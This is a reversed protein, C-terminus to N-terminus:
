LERHCQLCRGAERCASAERFGEEVERSNGKRTRLPLRPMEERIRAQPTERHGRFPKRLRRDTLRTHPVEGPAYAAFIALAARRGQAMAQVATAPGSVADGGAYVKALSTRQSVPDAWVTGDSNRRLGDLHPDSWLAGGVRQGLAPILSDVELTWEAGETPVPRPRGSADPEGLRMRNLVLTAPKGPEGQLAAPDSLFHFQVGERAAEEVEDARAPMEDRTRRYLLHVEEAGLRLATRCVDMAANGGGVVAVRKGVQVPAGVKAAWLVRQFDLVQEGGPIALGVAEGAGVALFLARHERLLEGVGVGEPGVPSKTRFVVGRDRLDELEEDLIYPPLRYDPITTALRGGVVEGAEYVTVSAGLASLYYACAIGAPGSGVVGVSLGGGQLRVTRQAGAASAERVAERHKDALFRKCGNISIPEGDIGRLCRAECPHPCVRGIVGVLPIRTRVLSYGQEYEGDLALQLYDPIDVGAPCTSQCPALSVTPGLRADLVAVGLVFVAAAILSLHGYSFGSWTVAVLGLALPILCALALGALWRRQYAQGLGAAVASLWAGRRRTTGALDIEHLLRERGRLKGYCSRCRFAKGKDEIRCLSCDWYQEM